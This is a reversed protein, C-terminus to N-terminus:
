FIHDIRDGEILLESVSTQVSKKIQTKVKYVSEKKVEVPHFVNNFINESTAYVIKVKLKEQKSAELLPEVVYKQIKKHLSTRYFLDSSLWICINNDPKLTDTTIVLLFAEYYNEVLSDWVTFSDTIINDSRFVKSSYSGIFSKVFSSPSSSIQSIHAAKYTIFTYHKFSYFDGKRKFVGLPHCQSNVSYITSTYTPVGKSNLTNKRLYGSSCRDTESTIKTLQYLVGEVLLIKLTESNSM